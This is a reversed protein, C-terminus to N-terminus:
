PRLLSIVVEFPAIARPLIMGNDDNYLEVASALIRDVGIGYSGMVVPIEKGNHDLVTAGM